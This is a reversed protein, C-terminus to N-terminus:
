RFADIRPVFMVDKADEITGIRVPLRLTKVSTFDITSGAIATRLRSAAVASAPWGRRACSITSATRTKESVYGPLTGNRIYWGTDCVRIM